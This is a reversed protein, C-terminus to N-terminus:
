CSHCNLNQLNVIAFIIQDQIQFYNNDNVLIAYKDSSPPHPPYVTIRHSSLLVLSPKQLKRSCCGVVVEFLRHHITLLTLCDAILMRMSNAQALRIERKEVRGMEVEVEKLKLDM